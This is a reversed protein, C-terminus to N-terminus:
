KLEWYKTIANGAKDIENKDIVVVNSLFALKGTANTQLDTIVDRLKGDAGYQGLGQFNYTATGVNGNRGTWTGSGKSYVVGKPGTAIFGKGNDTVNVGNLVGNGTFVVLFGHTGNVIVPKLSTTKDYETGLFQPTGLTINSGIGGPPVINTALAKPIIQSAVDVFNPSVESLVYSTSMIAISSLFGIVIAAPISTVLRDRSSIQTRRELSVTSSGNDFKM